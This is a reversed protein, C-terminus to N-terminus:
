LQIRKADAKRGKPATEPNLHKELKAALDRRFEAKLDRLAREFVGDEGEKEVFEALNAPGDYEADTVFLEEGNKKSVEITYKAM